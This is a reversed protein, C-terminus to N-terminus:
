SVGDLALLQREIFEEARRNEVEPDCVRYLESALERAVDPYTDILNRLEDPDAELDVEYIESLVMLSWLCDAFEHM